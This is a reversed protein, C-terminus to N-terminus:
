TRSLFEGRATGDVTAVMEALGPHRGLGPDDDIVEVAFERAEAIVDEDDLVSLLRLGSARGSQAAGVVDGEHRLQLDLRALEFGDTTAAVSELRHGSPAGERRGSVLICLGPHAGRGVRGRLQHLQSVGFREADLIVMVTANPVDVGVEVVTTCVLVDIMGGAFEQMTTDKVAPPLRGHLLGVRVRALSGQSLRDYVDVVANAEDEGNGGSAAGGGSDEGSAAGAAPGASGGGPPPESADDGIRACVVYAQRGNSVEEVIREWARVVWTPRDPMSVVSTGIPSRGRPLERLTSTDLDGFVTMAITRPIPTATMVLLHPTIGERAKDRLRDRQEVGFRHQEDVVVLGLECFSVTDQLLAHTGVVIGAEGSVIELLARRRQATPMSGTLLTVRTASDAGSLEGAHALPGLMERISRAHQSALVETPALLACQQGADVAQLMALIAIVTKGSGVEGQLLRRMPVPLSLDERVTDVVERQGDTLEFPLRALFADVIGDAAPGCVPATGRADVHRNRALLLQMAAAEDFRLRGRASAVDKDGSPFHIGRLATDLDVHGYRAVISAPIPDEIPELQDLVQRVCRMMVWSQLERTAPYIPLMARELDAASLGGDTDQLARAMDALKGGGQVRQGKGLLTGDDGGSGAGPGGSSTDPLLVYDPHTLQLHGRFSGIQGSFLGRRGVAIHHRVKFPNFFTVSLRNRGDDLVAKLIKKRPDRRVPAISSEVIRAAITVHAGATIDEPAMLGGSRLYTRPYHRLLDGVTRLEFARYLLDATANGLLLDLRDTLRAVATM